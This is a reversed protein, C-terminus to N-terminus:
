RKANFGVKGKGTGGNAVEEANRSLFKNVFELSNDAIKEYYSNPKADDFLGSSKFIRMIQSKDGSSCMAIRTMLSRENKGENGYLPIGNYLASFKEGNKARTAREVVERDSMKNLSEIGRETMDVKPMAKAAIVVKSDAVIESPRKYESSKEQEVEEKMAREKSIQTLEEYTVEQFDKEKWYPMEQMKEFEKMLAERDSFGYNLALSTQGYASCMYVKYVMEGYRNEEQVISYHEVEKKKENEKSIVYRSIRDADAIATFLANPDETIEKKWTEIYAANNQIHTESPEINLDQELFLSAFEARLEELAYLSSGFSNTLDRNLRDKHGTSHGIEHFATSYFEQMSKFSEREPLHITDDSPKYFAQTGGYTIKAENKDWYDLINEAREIKDNVNIQPKEKEPIGDILDGNFVIYSRKLPYVNDRLYEDKEEVTMGDLVHRDFSKKTEKDRLEFFEVPIGKGRAISKGEEDKKFTWGREEMQKYTAWRNDKFGNAMSVLALYLYNVGRYKKGSTASEPVGTGVWGQMWITGKDFNNIVMELLGQRAKSLKDYGVIENVNM